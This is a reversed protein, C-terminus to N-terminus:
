HVKKPSDDYNNYIELIVNYDEENILIKIEESNVAFIYLDVDTYFEKNSIYSIYSFCKDFIGFNHKDANGLHGGYGCKRDLIGITRLVLIQQWIDINECDFISGFKNPGLKLFAYKASFEDDISCIDFSKQVCVDDCYPSLESINMARVDKYKYINSLNVGYEGFSIELNSLLYPILISSIDDVNQYEREILKKLSNIFIDMDMDDSIEINIAYSGILNFIEKIDDHESYAIADDFGDFIFMPYYKKDFTLDSNFIKLLCSRSMARKLEGLLERKKIHEQVGKFDGTECSLVSRSVHEDAASLNSTALFLMSLTTLMVITKINVM